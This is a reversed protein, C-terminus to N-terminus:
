LRLRLEAKALVIRGRVLRVAYTKDAEFGAVTTLATHTIAIRNTTKVDVALLPKADKDALDYLVLQVPATGPDKSLFGIFHVKWPSGKIAEYKDGAVANAKVYAPLDAALVPTPDPSIVIRGGYQKVLAATDADALGVIALLVFVALRM